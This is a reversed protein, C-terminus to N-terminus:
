WPPPTPAGKAQGAKDRDKDPGSTQDDEADM